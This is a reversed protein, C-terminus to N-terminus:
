CITTIYKEKSASFGRIGFNFIYNFHQTLQPSSLCKFLCETDYVFLIFCLTNSNKM